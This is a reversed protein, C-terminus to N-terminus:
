QGTPPVVDSIEDVVPLMEPGEVELATAEDDPGEPEECVAEGAEVVDAAEEAVEDAAAPSDEAAKLPDNLPM